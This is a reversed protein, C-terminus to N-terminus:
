STREERRPFGKRCASIIWKVVEKEEADTLVTDPGPRSKVFLNSLRFQFIARPINFKNAATKKGMGNKIAQLAKEVDEETFAKSYKKGVTVKPM